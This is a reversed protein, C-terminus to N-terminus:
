FASIVRLERSELFDKETQSIFKNIRILNELIQESYLM